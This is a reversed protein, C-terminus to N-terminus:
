SKSGFGPVKDSEEHWVGFLYGFAAIAAFTWYVGWGWGPAANRDMVLWLVTFFVLPNRVPMCDASIVIKKKM